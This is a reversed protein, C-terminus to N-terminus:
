CAVSNTKTKSPTISLLSCLVPILATGILPSFFQDGTVQNKEENTYRLHRLVVSLCARTVCDDLRPIKKGM